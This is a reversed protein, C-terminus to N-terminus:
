YHDRIGIPLKLVTYLHTISSTYWGIFYGLVFYWKRTMLLVITSALLILDDFYMYYTTTGGVSVYQNPFITFDKIFLTHRGVDQTYNGSADKEDTMPYVYMTFLYNLGLDVLVGVVAGFLMAFLKGKLGGGFKSGSAMSKAGAGLKSGM